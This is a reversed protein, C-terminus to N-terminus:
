TPELKGADRDIGTITVTGAQLTSWPARKARELEDHKRVATRQQTATMKCCMEAIRICLPHGEARAYELCGEAFV